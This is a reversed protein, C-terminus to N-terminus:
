VACLLLEHLISCSPHTTRAAAKNHRGLLKAISTVQKKVEM